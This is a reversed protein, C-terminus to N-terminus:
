MFFNDTAEFVFNFYSGITLSIAKLNMLMPKCSDRGQNM